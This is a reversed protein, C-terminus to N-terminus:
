QFVKIMHQILVESEGAGSLTQFLMDEVNVVVSFVEGTKEAYIAAINPDTTFSIMSRQGFVKIEQGFAAHAEVYDSLSGWAKLQQAHAFESASRGAQIAEDITAGAYRAERYGKRAADSMIYGTEQLIEREAGFSTGRFITVTKDAAETSGRALADGIRGVMAVESGAALIAHAEMGIGIASGIGLILRETTSLHRGTIPDYGGLAVAMGYFNGIVPVFMIGM